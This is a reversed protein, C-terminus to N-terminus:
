GLDYEVAGTAVTIELYYRARGDSEVAIEECCNGTFRAYLEGGATLPAITNGGDVSRMVQVAGTWTGALTLWIPRDQPPDYPGAQMSAAATGSLTM